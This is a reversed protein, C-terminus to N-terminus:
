QMCDNGDNEFDCGNHPIKRHLLYSLLCGAGWIDIKQNYQQNREMEPAIFMPTGHKAIM